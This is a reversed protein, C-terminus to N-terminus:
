CCRLLLGWRDQDDAGYGGNVGHMSVPTWNIGANSVM